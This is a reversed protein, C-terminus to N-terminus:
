RPQSPGSNAITTNQDNTDRRGIDARAVSGPNKMLDSVLGLAGRATSGVSGEARASLQPDAPVSPDACFCGPPKGGCAAVRTCCEGGMLTKCCCLVDAVKWRDIISTGAAAVPLRCLANAFHATCSPQARASSVATLTLTFAIAIIRAM